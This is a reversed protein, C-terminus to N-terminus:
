LYGQAALGLSLIAATEMRLIRKGLSFCHLGLSGILGKEAESFGGEPGILIQLDARASKVSTPGDDKSNARVPKKNLMEALGERKDMNMREMAVFINERRGPALSELYKGLRGAIVLEPVNARESQEAAEIIIKELRETRLNHKMQSFDGEVLTIRCVGLEVAKQLILELKDPKNPLCLILGLAFSLENENLRKAIFRMVVDKKQSTEITYEFEFYPGNHGSKSDSAAPLLIVKDGASARLVKTLQYVIEPELGETLHFPREQQQPLSDALLHRTFFRYIRAM